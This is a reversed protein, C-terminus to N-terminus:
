CVAAAAADADAGADAGSGRRQALAHTHMHRYSPRWYTDIHSKIHVGPGAVARQGSLSTSCM